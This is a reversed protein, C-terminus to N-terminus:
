DKDDHDTSIEILCYMDSGLINQQNFPNHVFKIKETVAKFSFSDLYECATLNIGMSKGKKMIELIQEFKKCRM